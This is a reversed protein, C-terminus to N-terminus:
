FHQFINGLPQVAIVIAVQNTEGTEYVHRVRRFDILSFKLHSQVIKTLILLNLLTIWISTKDLKYDVDVTWWLFPDFPFNLPKVNNLPVSLIKDYVRLHCVHLGTHPCTGMPTNATWLWRIALARVCHHPPFLFDIRFSTCYMIYWLQVLGCM